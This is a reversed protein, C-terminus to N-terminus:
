ERSERSEVKEGLAESEFTRRSDSSTSQVRDVIAFLSSLATSTRSDFPLETNLEGGHEM